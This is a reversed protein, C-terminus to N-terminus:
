EPRRHLDAAKRITGAVYVFLGSFIIKLNRRHRRVVANVRGRIVFDKISSTARPLNVGSM